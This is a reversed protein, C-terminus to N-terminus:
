LEVAVSQISGPLLGAVLASIHRTRKSAFMITQSAANQMMQLKQISKLPLGM